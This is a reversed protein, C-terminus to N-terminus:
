STRYTMANPTQIREIRGTLKPSYLVGRVQAPTLGTRSSIEEASLAENRIANLVRDQQTDKKKGNPADARSVVHSISPERGELYAELLIELAKLTAPNKLLELARLKESHEAEIKRRLMEPDITPM